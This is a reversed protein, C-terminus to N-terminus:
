KKFYQAIHTDRNNTLWVKVEYFKFNIKDKKNLRKAVHGFFCSLLRFIKLVFPAKLTFYFSNKVMKLPKETALFQRLGSPHKKLQFVQKVKEDESFPTTITNFRFKNYSILTKHIYYKSM